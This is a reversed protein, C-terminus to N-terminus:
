APSVPTVDGHGNNGGSSALLAALGLVAALGLLLPLTGIGAGAPAIPAIAQGPVAAPAPPSTIPLVCGAPGQTAEADADAVAAAGATAGAAAGCVAASSQAGGLISLSVLPDVNAFGTAVPAAYVAQASLLAAAGAALVIGRIGRNMQFEGKALVAAKAVLVSLLCVQRL